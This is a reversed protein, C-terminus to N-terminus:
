ADKSLTKKVKDWLEYPRLGDRHAFFLLEELTILGIDLMEDCTLYANDAGTPFECVIPLAGCVHYVATAQDFTPKGLGPLGAWSMRGVEHGERLLRQRVAGAVRGYDQQHGPPVYYEAPGMMSGANCHCILVGDPRESLYYGMWALTEAQRQPMCFDYQLNVGADNYYSGMFATKDPPIPFINKASPYAYRTGDLAVGQSCRMCLEIPAGSTNAVPWRVAGDM